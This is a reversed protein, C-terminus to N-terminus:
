PQIELKPEIMQPYMYSRTVESQDYMNRSAVADVGGSMYFYQYRMSTTGYM